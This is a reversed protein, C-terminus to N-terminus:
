LFRELTLAIEDINSIGHLVLNHIQLALQNLVLLYPCTVEYEPKKIISSKKKRANYSCM